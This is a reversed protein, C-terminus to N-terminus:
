TGGSLGKATQRQWHRLLRGVTPHSVGVLRAVQRQSLGGHIVAVSCFAARADESSRDASTQSTLSRITEQALAVDLSIRELVETRLVLRCLRALDSGSWGETAAACARLLGEDLSRGLANLCTELIALRSDTSPLGLEIIVDFRREVARDLLEPHNTAAILISDSPWRELELLLVNVLRKLEGVDSDDDRRKALADFEDLFLVCQTTRAYDLARRLNQGTRGLYSSMLTALDLSVLPLTLSAAIYRATMTKGVGPAGVLLLTRAPTLGASVLEDAKLQDRMFSSIAADDPPNLAPRDIPLDPGVIVLPLTSDADRPLVSAPSGRMAHRQGGEDILLHGLQERFAEVDPIDLPPRRLLRSALQRVSGEDGTLGYRVVDFFAKELQPPGPRKDKV